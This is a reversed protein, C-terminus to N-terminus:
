RRPTLRKAPLNAEYVNLHLEDIGEAALTTELAALIARGYGHHRLARAVTMQCLFARAPRSTLPALKIWVWGVCQGDSTIATLLRQREITAAEHELHHGAPPGSAGGTLHRVLRGRATPSSENSPTTPSRSTSSRKSGQSTMSVLTLDPM